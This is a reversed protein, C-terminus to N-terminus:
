VTLTCTRSSVSRTCCSCIRLAGHFLIFTLQSLQALLDHNSRIAMSRLTNTPRPAWVGKSRNCELQVCMDAGCAWAWSVEEDSHDLIDAAAGVPVQGDDAALPTAQGEVEETTM